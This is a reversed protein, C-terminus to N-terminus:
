TVEESLTWSLHIKQTKLHRFIDNNKGEYMSPLNVLYFELNCIM